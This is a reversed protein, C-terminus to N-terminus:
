MIEPKNTDGVGFIYNEDVSDRPVAVFDFNAWNYTRPLLSVTYYYTVPIEEMTEPDIETNNANSNYFVYGENANVRWGAAEGDKLRDYVTLNPYNNHEESVEYTWVAM